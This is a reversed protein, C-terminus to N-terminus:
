NSPRSVASKPCKVQFEKELESSRLPDRRSRKETFECYKMKVM